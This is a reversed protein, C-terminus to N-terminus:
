PLRRRMPLRSCARRKRRRSIASKAANFRILSRRRPLKPPLVRNLRNILGIKSFAQLFSASKTAIVLDIPQGNAETLDLMRWSLCSSLLRQAPYWKFPLSVVDVAHGRAVLQRRLGEVLVEAGGREFPVQSACIVIRKM